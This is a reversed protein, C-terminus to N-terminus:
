EVAAVVVVALSLDAVRGLIQLVVVVVVVVVGNLWVAEM